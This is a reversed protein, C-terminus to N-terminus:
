TGTPRSTPRSRWCRSSRRRRCRGDVLMHVEAHVVRACATNMFLPRRPASWVYGRTCRPLPMMYSHGTSSSIARSDKVRTRTGFALQAALHDPARTALAAVPPAPMIVPSLGTGSARHRPGHLSRRCRITGVADAAKTAPIDSEDTNTVAATVVLWRHESILKTMM